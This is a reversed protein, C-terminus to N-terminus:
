GEGGEGGEGRGVEWGLRMALITLILITASLDLAREGEGGEGGKM